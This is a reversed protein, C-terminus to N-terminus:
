VTEVIELLVDAHCPSGPKCWCALNKGKLTGLYVPKGFPMPPTSDRKACLLAHTWDRRFLDVCWQAMQDDTGKYGAERAAAVTHSNGYPGPRTVSATNPPM